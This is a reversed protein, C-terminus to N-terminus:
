ILKDNLKLYLNTFVYVSVNILTYMILLTYASADITIESESIELCKM